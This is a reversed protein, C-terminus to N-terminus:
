DHDIKKFIVSGNTGGFGFSNSMVYNIPLAEAGNRVYNLDCGEDPEECNITPPVIQDRLTLVSAVGEIAGAAGLTHGLMSKISSVRLNYAHEGFAMKIAHNEIRDNAPTSTGHANIVQIDTKSIGADEIAGQMTRIAGGGHEDPATIHHADATMKFGVVEALIPAGRAVAYDYDELVLAGAGDSLVFGDRNKDWPRSAKTPAENRTSLAKMASFGGMGLICSAYESGGTIMVKADGSAIMRAALGINHTGSTCATVVSINPGKLGYKISIHGAAMNIITSPIFFPSIRKAGKELTTRYNDEIYSLGGIGSGFAVGTEAGITEYPLKAHAIAQDAAVLAYQIFPDMKRLDKPSFHEEPNYGSVLGCIHTRIGDAELQPNKKIGSKGALIAQWTSELDVGLPTVWGLGTVVVRRQTINSMM